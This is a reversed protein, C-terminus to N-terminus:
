NSRMNSAVSPSSATRVKRTSALRGAARWMARTNSSAARRPKQRERRLEHLLIRAERSLSAAHSRDRRAALAPTRPSQPRHLGAVPQERPHPRGAPTKRGALRRRDGVGREGAAIARDHQRRASVQLNPADAVLGQGVQVRAEAGRAEDVGVGLDLPQAVDDCARQAIEIRGGREIQGVAEGREFARRASSTERRGRGAFNLKTRSAPPRSGSASMSASMRKSASRPASPATNATRRAPSSSSAQRHAGPSTPSAAARSARAKRASAPDPSPAGPPHAREDPPVPRCRDEGRRPELRHRPRAWLGAGRQVMDEAPMHEARRDHDAERGGEALDVRAPELRQDLARRFEARGAEPERGPAREEDDPEVRAARGRDDRGRRPEAEDGVRALRAQADGDARARRGAHVRVAGQAVVRLAERRLQRVAFPDGQM